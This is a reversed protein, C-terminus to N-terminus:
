KINTLWNNYIGLGLEGSKEPHFQTAFINGKLISSCYEVEGYETVSLIDDADIPEVYFSHVFYMYSNSSISNLPTQNWNSNNPSITNWAIQPVKINQQKNATFKKVKGKVLGLGQHIGFEESEEFLLQLGLCVGMFPKGSQIFKQVSDIFGRSRLNNMAEEFAGVGPLLVADANELEKNNTTVLPNYGLLKCAGTVSYLNSLEYDIIVLKIDKKM